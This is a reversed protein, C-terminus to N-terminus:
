SREEVPIFEVNNLIDIHWRSQKWIIETISCNSITYNIFHNDHIIRLITKIVGGHTYLYINKNLCNKICIKLFEEIKKQFLCYDATPKKLCTKEFCLRQSRPLTPPIPFAAEKLKEEVMYEKKLCTVTQISRKLPSAYILPANEGTIKPLIYQNLYDAQRYGRRTLPSDKGFDPNIQWLSQGHRICYIRM